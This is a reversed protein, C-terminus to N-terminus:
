IKIYLLFTKIKNLLTRNNKFRPSKVKYNSEVQFVSTKIHVATKGRFYGSKKDRFARFVQNSLFLQKGDLIPSNSTESGGLCSIQPFCSNIMQFLRIQPRQVEQVGSKVFVATYWRFYGIKLDKCRRFVQPSVLIM